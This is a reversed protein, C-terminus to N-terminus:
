LNLILFNRMAAPFFEYLMAGPIKVSLFSKFLVVVTTGFAAAIWYWKTSRYGLRWSLAVTFGITVPLYGIIPVMWVYALFWGVWEFATFWKWSELKDDAHAKKRPMYAWHLAGFLVMGLLSIAPWLRPQGAWKTGDVWRTQGGIQSLLLASIVFFGIAFFLQGRLPGKFRRQQETDM